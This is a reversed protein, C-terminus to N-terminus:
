KTVFDTLYVFEFLSIEVQGTRDFSKEFTHVVVCPYSEPFMGPDTVRYSETDVNQTEDCNDDSQFTGDMFPFEIGLQNEVWHFDDGSSDLLLEVVEMDSQVLTKNM